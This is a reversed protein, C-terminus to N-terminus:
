PMSGGPTRLSRNAQRPCTRCLPHKENLDVVVDGIAVLAIGAPEIDLDIGAVVIEDLRRVRRDLGLEHRGFM